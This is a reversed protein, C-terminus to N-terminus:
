WTKSGLIRSSQFEFTGVNSRMASTVSDPDLIKSLGFDGLKVLPHGPANSQLLINGPKIDRHVIDNQHLFAIGNIIQQMLIVKQHTDNRPRTNRKFYQNLDRLDCYEMMIWMSDDQSKVDYIEIIQEHVIKKKFYHFKIAEASAKSKDKKCIKKVAITKGLRNTGKYVTGFGRPWTRGTSGSQKLICGDCCQTRSCLSSSSKENYRASIPLDKRISQLLWWNRSAHQLFVRDYKPMYPKRCYRTSNSRRGFM